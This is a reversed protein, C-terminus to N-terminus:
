PNRTVSLRLFASGPTVPISATTTGDPGPTGQTVGVSTWTGGILSPSTEVVYTVDNRVRRYTLQLLTPTASSSPLSGTFSGGGSGNPNLDLAYELLNDLGDNDADDNPGRLNVPVGANTLFDTLPDAAVLPPSGTFVRAVLYRTVNDYTTFAGAVLLKGDNQLAIHEALSNPGIGPNFDPDLTGNALFRALRNRTSGGATTFSGGVIIKGDPQIALCYGAQGLGSGFVTDIGGTPTLRIIRNAANATVNYSTFSGTAVLKGDPQVALDFVTSSTIGQAGANFNVDRVGTLDTKAIAGTQVANFSGFTGGIYLNEGSLALAHVTNNPGALSGPLFSPDRDGNPLLRVLKGRSQGHVTNFSGGVLINNDPQVLIELVDADFGSASAMFGTDLTGNANLRALRNRTTGAYSTFSGGILIKGDPQVALAKIAVNTGMAVTGLTFSPDLAGTPTFRAINTCPTGGTPFPNGPTVAARDFDGAILIKGDAQPWVKYATGGFLTPLSFVKSIPADFSFDLKGPDTPSVTLVAPNSIITDTGNTVAVTYNGADSTQLNTLTLTPSTKGDLPTGNKRWQYTLTGSGSALAQFTASQGVGSTLTAPTPQTVFVPPQPYEGNTLALRVFRHTGGFSYTAAFLYGNHVCLESAYHWTTEPGVLGSAYLPSWSLGANSSQAVYPIQQGGTNTTGGASFIATASAELDSHRSGTPLGADSGVWTGEGAVASLVSPTSNQAAIVIRDGLTTLRAPSGYNLAPTTSRTTWSAGQNDSTWLGSNAQTAFVRGNSVRIHSGSGAIGTNAPTWTQGGDTSKYPGQPLVQAYYTSGDRALDMVGGNLGVPQGSNNPIGTALQWSAGSDNSYFLEGTNVFRTAIVTSGHVLLEEAYIATNPGPGNATKTWTLGDDTSRYIGVSELPMGVGIFLDTGNSAIAQVRANVPLGTTLPQWSQAHTPLPSVALFAAFALLRSTPTM